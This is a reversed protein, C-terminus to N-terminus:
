IRPAAPPKKTPKLTAAKPAAEEKEEAPEEPAALQAAPAAPATPGSNASLLADPGKRPVWGTRKFVPYRIEGYAKNSHRYSGMGLEIVPYEDPVQRGHDSYDKALEGLATLGGKSSTTFTYFRGSKPDCLVVLHTLRWPDQVVGDEDTEWVTKDLYGLDARKPPKFGKAVLGMIQEVPRNDEWRTWGTMLQSMLAALSTGLELKVRDRGAQWDGFKNFTLLDGVIRNARVANAFDAFYDREPKEIENTM